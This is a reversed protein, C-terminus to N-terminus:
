AGLCVRQHCQDLQDNCPSNRFPKFSGDTQIVTLFVDKQAAARFAARVTPATSRRWIGLRMGRGLASAPGELPASRGFM